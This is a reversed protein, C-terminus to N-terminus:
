KPSVTQNQAVAYPNSLTACTDCTQKATKTDMKSYCLMCLVHTNLSVSGYYHAACKMSQEDNKNDHPSEACLLGCECCTLLNINHPKIISKHYLQPNGFHITTADLINDLYLANTVHEYYCEIHLHTCDGFFNKFYVYDTLEADAPNPSASSLHAAKNELVAISGSDTEYAASEEMKSTTLSDDNNPKPRPILICLGLPQLACKNFTLCKHDHVVRKHVRYTDDSRVYKAPQSRKKRHSCNSILKALVAMYQDNPRFLLRLLDKVQDTPAATIYLHIESLIYSCLSMDRQWVSETDIVLDLLDTFSEGPLVVKRAGLIQRSEGSLQTLKALLDKKLDEVNRKPM